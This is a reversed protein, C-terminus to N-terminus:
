LWGRDSETLENFICMPFLPTASVTPNSRLKRKIINKTKSLMESSYYVDYYVCYAHMRFIVPMTEGPQVTEVHASM